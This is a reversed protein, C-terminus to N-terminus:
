FSVEQKLIAIALAYPMILVFPNGLSMLLRTVLVLSLYSWLYTQHSFPLCCFYLTEISLFYKWSNFHSWEGLSWYVSYPLSPLWWDPFSMLPLRFLFLVLCIPFIMDVDILGMFINAMWSFCYIPLMFIDVSFLLPLSLYRYSGHLLLHWDSNVIYLPTTSPCWGLFYSISLCWRVSSDLYYHYWFSSKEGLHLYFIDNKM